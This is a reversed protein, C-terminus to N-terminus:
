VEKIRIRSPFFESGPHFFTPDPIRSLGLDAVSLSTSHPGTLLSDSGAQHQPGIRDVELQEAVEQLVRMWCQKMQRGQAPSRDQGGGATRGGGAISVNLV